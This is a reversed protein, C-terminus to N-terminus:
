LLVDKLEKYSLSITISGVSYPAIDYANYHFRISDEELAFNTTVYMEEFELIGEEWLDEISEAGRSKMLKDTLKQALIKEKDNRFIDEKHIKNGTQTNFCILTTITQPHAGGMYIEENFTYIIIGDFGYKARGTAYNFQPINIITAVETTDSEKMLIIDDYLESMEDEFETTKNRLYLNITETTDTFETKLLEQSIQKNILNAVNEYTPENAKMFDIDASAEYVTIFKEKKGAIKHKTEKNTTVFEIPHRNSIIDCSNLAVILLSYIYPKFLKKLIQM